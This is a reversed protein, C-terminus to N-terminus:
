NGEEKTDTSAKRKAHKGPTKGSISRLYNVIDWKTNDRRYNQEPMVPSDTRQIAFLEGDTFKGLTEPDTFGPARVKMRVALEGQGEGKAGHCMSCQSEFLKRGRNVSAASFPIPNPRASDDISIHYIHPHYNTVSAQTSTDALSDEPTQKVQAWLGISFLVLFALPQTFQKGRM